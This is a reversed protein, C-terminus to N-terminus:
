TEEDRDALLHASLVALAVALAFVFIMFAALALFGADKYTSIALHAGPWIVGAAITAFFYFALEKLSPTLLGRGVSWAAFLVLPLFLFMGAVVIGDLGYALLADALGLLVAVLGLATLFRAPHLHLRHQPRSQPVALEMATDRIM